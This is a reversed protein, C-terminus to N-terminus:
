FVLRALISPGRQVGRAGHLTALSTVGSLEATCAVLQSTISLTFEQALRRAAFAFLRNWLGRLYLEKWSREM